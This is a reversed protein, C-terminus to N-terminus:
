KPIPLDGKQGSTSDEVQVMEPTVQIVKYRGSITDGAKVVFVEDQYSVYAEHVGGTGESYGVAKLPLPPPPPPPPPTVPAAAQKPPAKPEVFAFPNRAMDPSPRKELKDLLEVQLNSDFQVAGPADGKINAAKKDARLHSLAVASPREAHAENGRLQSALRIALFVCVIGLVAPGWREVKQRSTM